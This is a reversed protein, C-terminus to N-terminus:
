GFHPCEQFFFFNLASRHMLRESKRKGNGLFAEEVFYIQPNPKDSNEERRGARGKCSHRSDTM